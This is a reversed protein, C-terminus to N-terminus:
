ASDNDGNFYGFGNGEACRFRLWEEYVRVGADGFNLGNLLLPSGITGRASMLCFVGFHGFFRYILGYDNFIFYFVYDKAGDGGRAVDNGFFRPYLGQEKDARAIVGFSVSGDGTAAIVGGTRGITNFNFGFAVNAFVSTGIVRLFDDDVPLYFMVLHYFYWFEDIVSQYLRRNCTIEIDMGYAGFTVRFVLSDNALVDGNSLNVYYTPRFDVFFIGNTIQLFVLISNLSYGIFGLFRGIIPRVGFFGGFDFLLVGIVVERLVGDITRGVVRAGCKVALGEKFRKFNFFGVRIGM